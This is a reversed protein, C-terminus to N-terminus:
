SDMVPVPPFFYEIALTEEETITEPRVGGGNLFILEDPTIRSKKLLTSNMQICWPCRVLFSVCLRVLNLTRRLHKPRSAFLEFIAAGILARPYWSLTQVIPADSDSLYGLACSIIRTIFGPRAPIL